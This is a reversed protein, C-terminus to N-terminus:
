GGSRRIPTAKKLRALLHRTALGSVPDTWGPAIAALPTLVFDRGRFAPHPIHLKRGAMRGGSWLIIDIDMSRAGWRRFRRRGLHREIRQLRALMDGPPLASEVLIAGNTFIRQSPGLPDTTILPSFARVRGLDGIMAAAEALLRAPTRRSSLPRNSGLALAYLHHIGLAEM